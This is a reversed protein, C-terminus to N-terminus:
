TQVSLLSGRVKALICEKKLFFIIYLHKFYDNFVLLGEKQNMMHTIYRLSLKDTVASLLFAYITLSRKSCLSIQM